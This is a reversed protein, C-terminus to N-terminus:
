KPTAKYLSIRLSVKNINKLLKRTMIRTEQPMTTYNITKESFGYFKESCTNSLSLNINQCQEIVM